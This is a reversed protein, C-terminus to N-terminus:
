CVIRPTATLLVTAWRAVRGLPSLSRYYCTERVSIRGGTEKLLTRAATFPSPFQFHSPLTENKKRRRIFPPEVGLMSLCSRQGISLIPRHLRHGQLLRFRAVWGIWAWRRDKDVLGCLSNPCFFRILGVDVYPTYVTHINDSQGFLDIIQDSLKSIWVM